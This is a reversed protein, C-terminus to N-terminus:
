EADLVFQRIVTGQPVHIERQLVFRTDPLFFWKTQTVVAPPVFREIRLIYATGPEADEYLKASNTAIRELSIAGDSDQKYYFYYIEENIAGALLFFKGELVSNDKISLLRAEVVTRERLYRDDLIEGTILPVCWSFFLALLLGTALWM